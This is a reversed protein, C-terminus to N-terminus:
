MMPPLTTSMLDNTLKLLNKTEDIDKTYQNYRTHFAEEDKPIDLRQVGSAECVRHIKEVSGRFILVFVIREESVNASRMMFNNKTIRFIMRQLQLWKGQEVLGVISNIENKFNGLWEGAQKMGSLEEELRRKREGMQELSKIQEVTFV